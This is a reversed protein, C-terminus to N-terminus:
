PRPGIPATHPWGTQVLVLRALADPPTAATDLTLDPCPGSRLAADLVRARQRHWALSDGHERRSLRRDIEDLPALLLVHTIHAHPLAARLCTLDDATEWVYPLILPLPGDTDLAPLLRALQRLALAQGFPDDTPRPFVKALADLDFLAHRRSQLADSIAEAVTTKGVGCPGNLILIPRYIALASGEGRSM